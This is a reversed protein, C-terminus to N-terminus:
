NLLRIFNNYNFFGENKPDALKVFETVEEKTLIHNEHAVQQMIQYFEATNIRGTNNKDFVRFANVLDDNTMEKFVKKDMIQKFDEFEFNGKFKPDISALLEATHEKEFILGVIQTIRDIDDLNIKGNKDSDFYDFVEKYDKEM